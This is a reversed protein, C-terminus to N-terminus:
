GRKRSAIFASFLCLAFIAYKALTVWPVESVEATLTAPDLNEKIALGMRIALMMDEGFDLAM